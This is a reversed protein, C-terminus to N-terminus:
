VLPLSPNALNYTNLALFGSPPTYSFPRQGFNMSGATTRLTGGGSAVSILATYSGSIGTFAAGTKSSGSTPNGSNQWTNNISFYIAGNDMDLAIGIVNGAVYASGYSTVTTGTVKTGDAIFAYGSGVDQATGSGVASTTVSQIGPQINQGGGVDSPTVEWYWKGSSVAISARSWYNGAATISTAWNLNGSSLTINSNNTLPNLTCYNGRNYGGDNYNTPSDIMSDYTTGSTVSIGSATWNNKSSDTLGLQRDYGITTTSTADNFPLYFGNTGYTGTYKIPLWAGTVSDTQGFYSPDLQQGDIFYYEALYADTYTWGGNTDYYGNIYHGYSSSNITPSYGSSYTTASFSTIQQGNVYMKVGNTYSAQSLDISFVVHYWASPDRFVASSVVAIYTATQIASYSVQMGGSSIYFYFRQSGNSFAQANLLYCGRETGRNDLAGIKVWASLTMKQQNGSVSPTRTLYASNSARFRLSQAIQYQNGGGAIAFPHIETPLAM